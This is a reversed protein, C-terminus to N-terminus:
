PPAEDSRVGVVFIAAADAAQAVRTPEAVISHGTVVALGALGARAVGAVTQPGISPLDLRRDQGPKPAKVLVGVKDAVGIRGESRLAEIRGLMRDTGEAAEIALVRNNAVVVAQGVDFSGITRILALGHAIDLKDRASPERKGLPGEGVLIEPALEQAAILRFGQQDFMEALGTLLHNDGGRYLRVVQPLLKLTLWDLRLQRLSPRVVNGIVVVDRCGEGRALRCFRAAEGLRFWHHPYRAVAAPEAFGQIAFLVVGFPLSGGGCVLALPGDAGDADPGRADM